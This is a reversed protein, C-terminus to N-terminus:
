YSIALTKDETVYGLQILRVTAAASSIRCGSAVRTLFGRGASSDVHFPGRVKVLDFIEHAIIEMQSIPMLFAGSAYFAQWELWDTKKPFSINQRNCRVPQSANDGSTETSFIRQFLISHFIVHGLEHAITTRRRNEDPSRRSLIESIRVIPDKQKFFLTVGEIDKGEGTLDAYPDFESTHEGLILEIDGTQIPLKVCGYKRTLFEIVIGDCNEDIEQTDYFPRLPFRGTDDSIWKM